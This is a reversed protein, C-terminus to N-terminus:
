RWSRSNICRTSDVNKQKHRLLMLLHASPELRDHTLDCFIWNWYNSQDRVDAHLPKPVGIKGHSYKASIFHLMKGYFSLKKTWVLLFSTTISQFEKVRAWKPQLGPAELMLPGIMKIANASCFIQKTVHWHCPTVNETLWKLHMNPAASQDLKFVVLTPESTM